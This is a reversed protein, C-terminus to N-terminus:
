TFSLLSCSAMQPCCYKYMYRWAPLHLCTLYEFPSLPIPFSLPDFIVRIQMQCAMVSCYYAGTLPALDPLRGTMPSPQWQIAQGCDLHSATSLQISPSNRIFCGAKLSGFGFIDRIVVVEQSVLVVSFMAVGAPVSSADSAAATNSTVSVTFVAM